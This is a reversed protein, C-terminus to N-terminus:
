VTQAQNSHSRLWDHMSISSHISKNTKHIHYQQVPQGSYTGAATINKRGYEEMENQLLLPIYTTATRKRPSLIIFSSICFLEFRPKMTELLYTRRTNVREFTLGRRSRRTILIWLRISKEKKRLRSREAKAQVKLISPWAAETLFSFWLSEM